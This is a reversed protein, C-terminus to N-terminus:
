VHQASIRRAATEQITQRGIRRIRNIEKSLQNADYQPYGQGKSLPQAPIALSPHRRRTSKMNKSSSQPLHNPPQYINQSSILQRCRVRRALSPLSSRKSSLASTLSSRKSALYSSRTSSNPSPEISASRDGHGTLSSNVSSTSRADLDYSSNPSGMSDRNFGSKRHQLPSLVSSSSGKDKSVASGATSISTISSARSNYGPQCGHSSAATSSSGVNALSSLSHKDNMSKLNKITLPISVSVDRDKTSYVDADADKSPSLDNNSPGPDSSNLNSGERASQVNQLDVGTHKVIHDPLVSKMPINYLFNEMQASRHRAAEHSRSGLQASLDLRLHSVDELTLHDRSAKTTKSAGGEHEHEHESEGAMAMGGLARPENGVETVVSSTECMEASLFSLWSESQFSYNPFYRHIIKKPVLQPILGRAKIVHLEKPTFNFLNEPLPTQNPLTPAPSDVRLEDFFPHSLATFADIRRNPEYCLMQDLLDCAERTAYGRMVQPWSRSPLEPLQVHERNPNMAKMQEITPTGLMKIIKLLQDEGTAGPFLPTGLLLEGFVCGVSWIDVATTYCTSEFALEPARYYRSCIYSVNGQGKVLVKASGFDCLKITHTSPDFLINQPKIDRHVVDEGHIYACARLLQYMYVKVLIMPIKKKAKRHVRIKKYLNQPIYEMVLNLYVDKTKPETSCFCHKLPVVCPHFLMRMIELERNKYNRDELVKKIAVVEGTEVVNAQFVLGFSGSDIVYNAAYKICKKKNKDSKSNSSQSKSLTSSFSKSRTEKRKTQKQYNM